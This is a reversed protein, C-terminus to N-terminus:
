VKRAGVKRRVLVACVLGGHEIQGPQDERHSPILGCARIMLSSPLSLTGSDDVADAGAVSREAAPAFRGFQHRRAAGFVLVL